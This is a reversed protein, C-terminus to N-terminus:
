LYVIADDRRRSDRGDLFRLVMINVVWTSKGSWDSGIFFLRSGKVFRLISIRTCKSIHYLHNLIFLLREGFFNNAIIGSNLFSSLVRENQLKLLTKKINNENEM